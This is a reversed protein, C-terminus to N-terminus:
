LSQPGLTHDTHSITILAAIVVTYTWAQAPRNRLGRLIDREAPKEFLGCDSWSYSKNTNDGLASCVEACPLFCLRTSHQTYLSDHSEHTEALKVCELM